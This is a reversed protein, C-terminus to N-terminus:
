HQHRIIGRINKGDLMDRYADNIQGLEYEKTVFDDLQLLGRRYLNLLRPIDARANAEGFLSGKLSKQFLTLEMLPIDAKSTVALLPLMARRLCDFMDDRVDAWYGHPHRVASYLVRALLQAMRGLDDVVTRIPTPVIKLLTTPPRPRGPAQTAV